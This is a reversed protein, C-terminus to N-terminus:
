GDKRESIVEVFDYNTDLIVLKSDKCDFCHAIIATSKKRSIDLVIGYRYIPSIGVVDTPSAKFTDHHSVWKILDGNKVRM